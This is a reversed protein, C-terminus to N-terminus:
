KAVITVPQSYIYVTNGDNLNYSYCFVVVSTGAESATVSSGNYSINTNGDVVVMTAATTTTVKEAYTKTKVPVSVSGGVNVTYGTKDTYLREIYDTAYNTRNTTIGWLGMAFFDDFIATDDITYPWITLGRHACENILEETLLKYNPNCTSNYHTYNQLATQLNPMDGLLGTSIGPIQARVRNIQDQSFAIICCQDLIDYKDILAKIAPVIASKDTKIEMYMITGTGKFAKFYDELTPINESFGSFYDVKYKSVQAYTMDELVGTGNTRADITKDHMAMVVGDTTIQLDMEVIAAGYEVAKQASIVTNEPAKHRFGMHGVIAVPRILSIGKFLTKNEVCAEFDARNTTVVGAAGATIFKYFEVANNDKSKYWVTTALNTLLTTNIDTALSAPLIVVRSGYTNAQERVVTLDTIAADSLDYIGRVKTYISRVQTILKGNTSVVFVDYLGNAKLFYALETAEATKDLRFAPIIGSSLEFLAEPITCIVNNDKDVVNLNSDISLIVTTPSNKHINAFDESTEVEFVMSPPVSINTTFERVDVTPAVHSHVKDFDITVKIYDAVATAGDGTQFGVNGKKYDTFADSVNFMQKGGLYGIADDGYISLSMPYMKSSSITETYSTKGQYEWSGSSNKEAFEVGNEAKANQRIAFQYFPYNNNQVRHMVSLWRSSNSVTKFTLSTNITYDGFDSVFSPLLVSSVPQLTLVGDSLSASGKGITLEDLDTADNFDNYYLVYESDTPNKVILYIVKKLSGCTANIKYIGADSATIKDESDISIETSSWKIKEGTYIKGNQAFQVNYNDLDLSFGVNAPIAPANYFVTSETGNVLSVKNIEYKKAANDDFTWLQVNAGNATSGGSIDMVCEYACVPIFVYYGNRDYIRWKQGNSGTFSYSIINTGATSGSSTAALFQGNGLNQIFYTGDSNKVFRWIQSADTTPASIVVNTGSLSINKGVSSESIRAYFDDGLDAPKNNYLSILKTYAYVTDFDVTVKISDFVGTSDATQIGIDGVAYSTFASSELVKKSNIYGKANNGYVYLKLSYLKASDIKETYSTKGQYGWGGSSNKEAFEIGNEVTADKRIAFQYFPYSSNQVRHMISMWRTSNKSDTISASADITYNGFGSIYAPLLLTKTGKIILRGNSVSLTGAGAISRFDSLDSSNFDNYYLVYEKDTPNKAIIYIKKTSSGSKAVLEYVGPVTVDVKGDSITIASSSWTINSKSTIKSNLTFQVHYNNLDVVDGVNASIAPTTHWIVNERGDKVEVKLIDFKKSNNTDDNYSWLQINTGNATSGSAFDMVAAHSCTPVIVYGGNAYYINWHQGKSGTYTYAHINTGNASKSSEACLYKGNSQNRIVYSGDAKRTFRWIQSDDGTPTSIMVNDTDSLTLNKGAKSESIRALFDDGLNIIEGSRLTSVRAYAYVKNFEIFVKISDYEATINSGTRFGIDGVAYDTYASSSLLLKTNIFGRLQNQYVFIKYDYLKSANIAETFSKKGQYEFTGSNNKESFEVGNSANAGKRITMQYFPYDKKQVRFMISKFRDAATATKITGRAYITYDGFEGVYAPLLVRKANTIVLRGNSIKVTGAGDIVRLENLKSASNFDNYYLVHETDSAKKAIIYIKKTTSGSKATLAFVGSNPVTVKGDTVTLVDSSWTISSKNTIKSNLAFQVHYDSLTIVDGVNAPIAPATFWIVNERNDKIDVKLIEYKKAANDDFGSLQVNTGNATKAGAVDMTAAYSCSPVFVYKGNKNYIHWRQGAAGTYAEVLINTGNASASGAATLYLGNSQNRIIYSGDVNRKFYWIQSDNGAPSNIVVNNSSLTLNKYAGSESIRAYFDTGVDAIDKSYLNALKTYSYIQAFDIYVKISDYHVTINAGTRFGIDGIAYDTYASSSLLLKTNIYGKLNNQYIQIKYDYLKSANIEETFAVKGQYEFSGSSNKESFEVGNSANAGKRITMQYFPYDKKQVRFMITKFRDAATASAITGRAHISYDGFEGVFAPLLVRKANTIVLKGNSIKVTGAGDIVRLENLKAASNFDNYYLVYDTDSTKKSILYIKKTTSGNKANLVFVGAASVKVKGDTITIDSSTWTIKSSPTLSSNLSYQVHYDNLNITDGVNAPIAPATFWIVNEFNKSVNAKLIDFKGSFSSDIAYLQVNAGNSTSGNAIDMSCASTCAPVFSYHGDLECVYWKEGTAGTSDATVINTGSATGSNSACLVKGNGQNYITYTGDTNRIFRWLQATARAPANIVVNTGSLALNKGSGAEAIRACFDDGLDASVLETAVSSIPVYSVMLVFVLLFAMVRKLNGSM